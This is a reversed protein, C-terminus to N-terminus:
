SHDNLLIGRRERFQRIEKQPYSKRCFHCKIETTKRYQRVFFRSEITQSNSICQSNPCVINGFIQDPLVVQYKKTVEFNEIISISAEPAFIAIQNTQEESLALGEVKILDKKGCRMSPLNMGLSIIEQYSDLSLMRMLILGKGAPIHDIVTGSQIAAVTLTKIEQM